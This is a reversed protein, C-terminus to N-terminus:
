KVGLFQTSVFGWLIISLGIIHAPILLYMFWTTSFNRERFLNDTDNKLGHTLHGAFTLAFFTIMLGAAATQITVSYPNYELLKAAVLMAFSYLLATRHAIDIYVPATHTASQMMGRYKLIGTLMGLMLFLGSSLLSIKVAINM